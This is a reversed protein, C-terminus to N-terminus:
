IQNRKFKSKPLLSAGMSFVLSLITITHHIYVDITDINTCHTAEFSWQDGHGHDLWDQAGLQVMPKRRCARGRWLVTSESSNANKSNMQM